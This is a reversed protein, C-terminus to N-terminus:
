FNSFFDGQGSDVRQEEVKMWAIQNFFLLLIAWGDKFHIKVEPKNFDM